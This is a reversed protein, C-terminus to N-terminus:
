KVTVPIKYGGYKGISKDLFYAGKIITAEKNKSILDTDIYFNTDFKDSDLENDLVLLVYLDEKEGKIDVVIQNSSTPVGKYIDVWFLVVECFGFGRCHRSARGIDILFGVGIGKKLNSTSVTVDSGYNPESKDTQASAVFSFMVTAILGLVLKKM